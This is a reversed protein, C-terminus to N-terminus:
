TSGADVALSLAVVLLLLLGAHSCHMAHLVAAATSGCARALLHIMM